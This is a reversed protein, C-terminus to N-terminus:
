PRRWGVGEGDWMTPIWPGPSSWTAKRTSASLSSRGQYDLYTEGKEPEQGWRAEFGRPARYSMMAIGRALAM